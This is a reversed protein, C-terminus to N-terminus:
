FMVHSLLKSRLVENDVGQQGAVDVLLKQLQKAKSLHANLQNIEVGALM